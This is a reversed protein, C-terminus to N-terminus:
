GARDIHRRPKSMTQEMQWLLWVIATGLAVVIALFLLTLAPVTLM